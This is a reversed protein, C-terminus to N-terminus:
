QHLRRKMEFNYQIFNRGRKDERTRRIREFNKTNNQKNENMTFMKKDFM